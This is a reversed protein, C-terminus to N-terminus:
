YEQIKVMKLATHCDKNQNLPSFTTILIFVTGTTDKATRNEVDPLEESGQVRYTVLGYFVEMSEYGHLPVM